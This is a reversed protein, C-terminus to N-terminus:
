SADDVDDVVLRDDLVDQALEQGRFAVLDLGRGRAFLGEGLLGVPGEVDDSRSRSMGPMSPM